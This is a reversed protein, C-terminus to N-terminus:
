FNRVYTSRVHQTIQTVKQRPDISRFRINFNLVFPVVGVCTIGHNITNTISPVFDAVPPSSTSQTSSVGFYGLQKRLDKLKLKTPSLEGYTYIPVQFSEVFSQCFSQAVNTADLMTANELPVFSIHDVTGLTPHTGQHQTFDISQFATRAFSLVSEQISGGLFYYSTRNYTKDEFSHVLISSQSTAATKLLSTVAPRLGESVYVVCLLM